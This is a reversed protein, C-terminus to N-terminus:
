RILPKLIEAAYKNGAENWHPDCDFYFTHVADPLAAFPPLLDLYEM